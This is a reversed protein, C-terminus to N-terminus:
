GLHLAHVGFDKDHSQRKGMSAPVKNSGAARWLYSMFDNLTHYGYPLHTAVRSVHHSIRM